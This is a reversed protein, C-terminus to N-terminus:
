LWAPHHYRVTHDDGSSALQKRAHKYSAKHAAPLSPIVEEFDELTVLKRNIGFAFFFPVEIRMRDELGLMMYRLAMLYGQVYAVDDYRKQRLKQKRISTYIDFVQAVTAPDSYEGTKRRQIARDFAHMMGDQYALAYVVQPIDVHSHKESFETHQLGILYRLTSIEDYIEDSHM